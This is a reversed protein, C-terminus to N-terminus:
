DGGYIDKTVEETNALGRLEEKEKSYMDFYMKAMETNNM